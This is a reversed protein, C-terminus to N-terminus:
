KKDELNIGSIIENITAIGNDAQMILLSDRSIKIVNTYDAIAEEYQGTATHVQGRYYFSVADDPNIAIAKDLDALASDYDDLQLHIYGRNQFDDANGPELSIAKDFDDKAQSLEGNKLYALGRKSYAEAFEPKLDIAKTLDAAAQHYGNSFMYVDSRAMYADFTPELTLSKGLFGQALLYGGTNKYAVGLKYYALAMGEDIGRVVNGDLNIARNMDDIAPEDEGKLAYVLSRAHYALAYVVDKDIAKDFDDLAKDLMEESRYAMGRKYYAEALGPDIEIVKSYQEIAEIYKQSALYQDGHELYKQVRDQCATAPFIVILILVTIFVYHFRNNSAPRNM